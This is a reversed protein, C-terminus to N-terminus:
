ARRYEYVGRGTKKGLRGARALKVLLPAPRYKDGLERHLTEVCALVVDLGSADAAALPGLPMGLGKVCSKDIDEASAVGEGLVYFAENLLPIYLRNIVFAPADNVVVTDKGCRELLAVTAKVTDESTAVGRTVEVLPTLAAPILFHAGICSEPRGTASAIETISITSTNTALVARRPSALDLDAFVRKKTEADEFVAELAFDADGAGSELSMTPVLANLAAEREQATMKGKQEQRALFADIRAMGQKLREADAEVVATALGARAFVGAIQSGMTGLGVVCVKKIEM